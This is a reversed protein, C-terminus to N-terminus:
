DHPAAGNGEVLAAGVARSLDNLTFPKALFSSRGRMVGRNEVDADNYGSIFLVSVTPRAATVRDALEAGNMGPMVVDTLLLDIKLAPNDSVRLAEEATRATLVQYGARSLSRQTIRRVGDDDDVLLVTASGCRGYDAPPGDATAPTDTGDPRADTAPFELIFSTGEGPVTEVRIRGGSQEVIGYVTALGLGTGRGLSKTTFFPEFIHPVAEPPIGDGTDRITLRLHAGSRAIPEGESPLVDETSIQLQGGRPM